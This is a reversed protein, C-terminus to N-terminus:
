NPCGAELANVTGAFAECLRMQGMTDYRWDDFDPAWTGFGSAGARQPV